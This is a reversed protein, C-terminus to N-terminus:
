PKALDLKFRASCLKIAAQKPFVKWPSFMEPWVKMEQQLTQWNSSLLQHLSGFIHPKFSIQLIWIKISKFNSLFFVLAQWYFTGLSRILRLFDAPILSQRLAPWTVCPLIIWVCRNLWPSWIDWPVNLFMELVQM